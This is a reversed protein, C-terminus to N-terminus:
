ILLDCRFTSKTLVDDASINLMFNDSALRGDGDSLPAFELEGYKKESWQLRANNGYRNKLQTLSTIQQNGTIVTVVLTTAMNANKFINGNISEIFVTTADEGAPGPTTEVNDIQDQLDVIADKATKGSGVYIWEASLGVTQIFRVLLNGGQTVGQTWVPDGGNWGTETWLYTGPEPVTAIFISDELLPADHLYSTKAGTSENAVVTDYYGLANAYVDNLHLTGEILRSIVKQSDQIQGSVITSIRNTLSEISKESDGLRISTYKDALSDWEYSVVRQTIDTHGEWIARVTDGLFVKELETSAGTRRLDVFSIDASARPKDAGQVWMAAVRRQVEIEALQATPYDDEEEGVRIDGFHIAVTRPETAFDYLPSKIVDMVVPVTEGRLYTPLVAHYAESADIEDSIGTLNQGYRVQFGRDSGRRSLMNVEFRRRELEGGWRNVVSVNGDVTVDVVSRRVARLGAVTEVDSYGSFDNAGGAQLIDPWAAALTQGTWARDGILYNRLDYSIHWATATIETLTKTTKIIRFLERENEPTSMELIAGAKFDKAYPDRVSIKVTAHFKGSQDATLLEEYPRASLATLPLGNRELDEVTSNEPYLYVRGM